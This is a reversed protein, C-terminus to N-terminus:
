YTRVLEVNSFDFHYPLSSSLIITLDLFSLVPLSPVALWIHSSDRWGRPPPGGRLWGVGVGVGVQTEWYKPHDVLDRNPMARQGLVIGRVQRSQSSKGVLGRRMMWDLDVTVASSRDSVSPTLTVEKQRRLFARTLRASDKPSFRKWVRERRSAGNGYWDWESIDNLRIEEPTLLARQEVDALAQAGEEGEKAEDMEKKRADSIPWGETDVPTSSLKGIFLVNATPRFIGHGAICAFYRLGSTEHVGDCDGRSEDLVVGIRVQKKQKKQKKQQQKKKTSRAASTQVQGVFAITGECWVRDSIKVRCRAGVDDVSWSHEQRQVTTAQRVLSLFGPPLSSASDASGGSHSRQVSILSPITPPLPPANGLTAAKSM